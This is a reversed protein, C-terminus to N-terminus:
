PSSSRLEKHKFHWIQWSKKKVKEWSRRIEKMKFSRTSTCLINRYDKLLWVFTPHKEMEKKWFLFRIKNGKNSEVSALLIWESLLGLPSSVWDTSIFLFNEPSCETLPFVLLVKSSYNQYSDSYMKTVCIFDILISITRFQRIVLVVHFLWLQNFGFNSIKM